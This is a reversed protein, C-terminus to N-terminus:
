DNIGYLGHKRIYAVTSTHLAQELYSGDHIRRRIESSSVPILPGELLQIHSRIEPAPEVRNSVARPIVLFTCLEVLSEWSKWSKLITLNDEGILIYFNEPGSGTETQLHRVTDITYSIGGQRLEYDNVKVDPSADFLEHLMALRHRGDAGPTQDQKHPAIHAPMVDILCPSFRSRVADLIQLHGVHVPDFSGGFLIRKEVM